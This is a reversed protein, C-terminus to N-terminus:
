GTTVHRLRPAVHEGVLGEFPTGDSFLGRADKGAAMEKLLAKLRATNVSILADKVGAAEAARMVVEKRADPVSMYHDYDVRWSRGAVKVGDLRQDNMERIALEELESRRSKLEDLKNNLVAVERDIEAIEALASQLLPAQTDAFSPNM